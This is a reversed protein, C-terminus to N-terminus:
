RTRVDYPTQKFEISLRDLKNPGLRTAEGYIVLKKYAAKGLGALITDLTKSTLVNGGDVRQDHLIGNYLLAYATGDHVGLAAARKKPKKFPTKTEYFWIHAALHDFKISERIQGNEDFVTEGLTYFRFGGGGHWGVSKSIGGQEGDIIKQLRLACHTKAHEGMEIGIYRRGMKQAVAATTGSGLFSDMVIDGPNTALHIIRQILREPKPTEFPNNAGFLENIEKKAEQNHGVEENTWWTWANQGQIESLYTKKRPVGQGNKGFWIRGTAIEEQMRKETFRWCLSDPLEIIRGAPTTLVYFQEKTAHGAQATCDTSAWPGRPDNDPNKFDKLRTKNVDLQNFNKETGKNKVYVLIYDQANGLRLRNDPSTRKQWVVNAVFNNRGMIEDCMVRAYAHENDDLQIFIAGDKALLEHLLELRPYMISLWITHELNDDYQDFASGTNYPPDIYICKVQGAYFPLLAKLAELNDGQIIMNGTEPDGASLDPEERLLRYAAKGAAKLDDKRTLWSLVPM